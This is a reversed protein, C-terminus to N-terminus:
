IWCCREHAALKNIKDNTHRQLSDHLQNNIQKSRGMWQGGKAIAANGRSNLNSLSLDWEYKAAAARDQLNDGAAEAAAAATPLQRTAYPVDVVKAPQSDVLVTIDKLPVQM